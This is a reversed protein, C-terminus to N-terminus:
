LNKLTVEEIVRIKTDYITPAFCNDYMEIASDYTASLVVGTEINMYGYKDRGGDSVVKVIMFYRGEEVIVDGNQLDRTSLSKDIFKM